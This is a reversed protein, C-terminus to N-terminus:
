SQSSIIELHGQRLAIKHRKGYQKVLAKFDYPHAEEMLPMWKKLTHDILIFLGTDDGLACFDQRPTGFIPTRVEYNLRERVVSVKTTPIGIESIGIISKTEFTPQPMMTIRKRGIFEVINKAPDHFYMAEAEWNPFDILIEGEFPLLQIQRHELWASAQYMMRCPINFAFHYTAPEDSKEFTLESYGCSVTFRDEKDTKLKFGLVDAYFTKMAAIDQTELTLSEIWM